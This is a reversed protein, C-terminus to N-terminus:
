EQYWFDIMVRTPEVSGVIVYIYGVNKGWTVTFPSTSQDGSTFDVVTAFLCHQVDSPTPIPYWSRGKTYDALTFTKRIYKLGADAEMPILAM